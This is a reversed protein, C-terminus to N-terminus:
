SRRGPRFFTQVAPDRLALAVWVLVGVSLPVLSQAFTPIEVRLTAAVAGGFYGTLLLAGLQATPPAAYLATCAGLVVGLVPSIGPPWGIGAMATRLFAPNLLKSAVVAVLFAVVLGTLVTGGRRLPPPTASPPLPTM